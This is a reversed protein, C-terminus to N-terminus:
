CKFGMARSVLSAQMSAKMFLLTTFALWDCGSSWAAWMLM